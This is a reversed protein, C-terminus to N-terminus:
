TLLGATRLKALLANFDVVLGAVDTAVSNVQAPMKKVGGNVATTAAPLTYQTVLAAAVAATELRNLKTVVDKRGIWRGWVNPVYAM